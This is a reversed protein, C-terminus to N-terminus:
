HEPKKGKVGIRGGPAELRRTALKYVRENDRQGIAIIEVVEVTNEDVIRFVMRLGANRWKLKKCGSLERELPTGIEDARTELKKLAVNVLKKTSGDLKRYEKAAAENYFVVQFRGSM